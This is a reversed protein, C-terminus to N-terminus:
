RRRAKSSWTTSCFTEFLPDQTVEHAYRYGALYGFYTLAQHSANLLRLKMLEYPVVDAVLQVEAKEFEPRGPPLPRRAGVAHFPECVVPWADDIGFRTKVQEIDAPATVPTIRDVMANPFAVNAEVWEGLAKDQADRLRRVDQACSRRQGPHQRFEHHHFPAIGRDRRRRLAEITLGFVTTPASNGALDAAVAPNDYDFDGTM